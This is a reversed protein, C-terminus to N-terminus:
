QWSNVLNIFEDPVTKIHLRMGPDDAAFSCGSLVGCFERGNIFCPGGSMGFIKESFRQSVFDTSHLWRGDDSLKCQISFRYEEEKNSPNGYVTVDVVDRSLRAVAAQNIDVPAAQIRNNASKSAYSITIDFPM